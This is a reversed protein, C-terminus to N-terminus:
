GDNRVWFVRGEAGSERFHPVGIVTGASSSDLSVRSNEAARDVLWVDGKQLPVIRLRPPVIHRNFRGSARGGGISLGLHDGPLGQVELGDECAVRGAAQEDLLQPDGWCARGDLWGLAGGPSVEDLKPGDDIHVSCVGDACLTSLVGRESCAVSEGVGTVSVFDGNPCRDVFTAGPMTSGQEFGDGYVIHDPEVWAWPGEETLGVRRVNGIDFTQKPAQVPGVRVPFSIAVSQGSSAVSQGFGEPGQLVEAPIEDGLVYEGPTLEQCALLVLLSWTM